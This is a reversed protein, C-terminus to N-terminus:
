FVKGLVLCALLALLWRNKKDGSCNDMRLDFICKADFRLGPNNFLRSLVSLLVTITANSGKGGVWPPVFYFMFPGGHIRVGVCSCTFFNPYFTKCDKPYRILHPETLKAQDMGDIIISLHTIAITLVRLMARSATEKILAYAARCRRIHALHQELKRRLRNRDQVALSWVKLKNSFEVCKSCGDFTRTWKNERCTIHRLFQNWTAVFYSQSVSERGTSLMAADFLEFTYEKTPYPLRIEAKTDAGKRKDPMHEAMEHAECHLWACVCERKPAVRAKKASVAPELCGGLVDKEFSGVTQRRVALLTTFASKCCPIFAGDENRLRYSFGETTYADRVMQFLVARAERQPLEWYKQRVISATELTFRQMCNQGCKCRFNKLTETITAESTNHAYLEAHKRKKRRPKTAASPQMCEEEPGKEFNKEEESSADAESAWGSGWLDDDSDAWASCCGSDDGSSGTVWGSLAFPSKCDSHVGEHSDATRDSM